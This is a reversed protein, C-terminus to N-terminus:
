KGTTKGWYSPTSSPFRKTSCAWGFEGPSWRDGSASLVPVEGGRRTTSISTFRHSHRTHGKRHGIKFRAGGSVTFLTRSTDEREERPPVPSPSRVGKRQDSSGTSQRSPQSETLVSRVTAEEAGRQTTVGKSRCSEFGRALYLDTACNSDHQKQHRSSYM